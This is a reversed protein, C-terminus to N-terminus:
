PHPQEVMGLIHQVRTPAMIPWFDLVRLKKGPTSGIADTGFAQHREQRAQNVGQFPILMVVEGLLASALQKGHACRCRIAEQTGM